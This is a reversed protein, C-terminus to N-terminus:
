FSVYLHSIVTFGVPPWRITYQKEFSVQYRVICDILLMENTGVGACASKVLKAITEFPKLKMGITFLLGDKAKGTFEKEMAKELSYGYKDAYVLSVEILHQPPASCVAKFISKCFCLCVIIDARCSHM